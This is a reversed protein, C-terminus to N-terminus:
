TSNQSSNPGKIQMLAQLRPTPPLQDQGEAQLKIEARFKRLRSFTALSFGMALFLGSYAWLEQMSDSMLYAMLIALAVSLVMGFVFVYKEYLSVAMKMRQMFAFQDRQMLQSPGFVYACLIPMLSNVAGYFFCTIAYCVCTTPVLNAQNSLLYCASVLAYEIVLAAKVLQATELVEIQALWASFQRGLYLLLAGVMGLVTLQRDNNISHSPDKVVSYVILKFSGLMVLCPVLSLAFLFM